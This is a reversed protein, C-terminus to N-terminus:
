GKRAACEADRRFARLRGRHGFLSRRWMIQVKGRRPAAHKDVDHEPPAFFLRAEQFNADLNQELLNILDATTEPFFTEFEDLLSFFDVCRSQRLIEYRDSIGAPWEHEPVEDHLYEAVVSGAPGLHYLDLENEQNNGNGLGEHHDHQQLRSGTFAVKTERQETAHSAVRRGGHDPNLACLGWSQRASADKLM